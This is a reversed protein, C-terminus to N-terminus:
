PPEQFLRLAPLARQVLLFHSDRTWLELQNAIAVTAIVVDPFGVPTGATRLTALHDGVLTWLLEPTPLSPLASLLSLIGARETPTRAGHLLEARVVGCVAGQHSQLLQAIKPDGKRLYAILVDTDVVIM